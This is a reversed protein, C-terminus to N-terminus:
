AATAVKAVPVAVYGKTVLSAYADRMEQRNAYAFKKNNGFADMCTATNNWWFTFVVMGRNSMVKSLQALISPGNDNKHIM